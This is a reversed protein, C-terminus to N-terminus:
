MNLHFGKYIGDCEVLNIEICHLISTKVFAILLLHDKEHTESFDKINVTSPLVDM